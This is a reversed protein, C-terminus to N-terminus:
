IPDIQRQGTHSEGDGNLSTAFAEVQEPLGRGIVEAILPFFLAGMGGKSAVELTVALRTSDKHEIDATLSGTLESSDLDLRMQRPATAVSVVASGKYSTPGVHASWQFSELTGDAAHTPEWVDDVPGIGSWTAADQLTAWVEAPPRTIEVSHSFSARPM